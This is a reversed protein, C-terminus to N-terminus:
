VTQGWVKTIDGGKSQQLLNSAQAGLWLPAKVFSAKEVAHQLEKAIIDLQTSNKSVDSGTLKKVIEPGVQELMRSAGAANLCLDLVQNLDLGLHAAFALAEGAACVHVGKLLAIVLALREEISGLESSNNGDKTSVDGTYIRILGSDDDRGYGQRFATVYAQEAISSMPALFNCRRAESTIIGIDKLMITLASAVPQFNTFIRPTRHDFMFSQADSKLVAERTQSLDLGLHDAFGMAECAALVHIAALVQHVMKMNSGAGIEGKVIYLSKEASMESLINQAKGIAADSGAAMISLTGEAARQVGGSIPCDVLFVDERGEAILQRSFEQVYASSVTSAVLVTANSSLEPCARSNGTFFVSQTQQSNAVCSIIISKGRVAEAPTAATKGGAARFRELTPGWADFGTVDYGRKLLNTAMGFGMAGLGIFAISDSKAM